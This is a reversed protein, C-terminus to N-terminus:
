KVYPVERKIKSSDDDQNELNKNDKVISNLDTDIIWNGSYELFPYTKSDDLYSKIQTNIITIKSIIACLIAIVLFIKLAGVLFGAIKDLGTLGSMDILKSLIKGIILCLIWFALWASGLGIAYELSSNAVCLNQTLDCTKQCVFSGVQTANRSAVFAGGILGLLGFVEKIFGNLLGKVGIMLALVIVIIDFWLGSTM